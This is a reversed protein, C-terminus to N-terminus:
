AGDSDGLQCTTKGCEECVDHMKEDCGPTCKLITHDFWFNEHSCEGNFGYGFADMEVQDIINDHEYVDRVETILVGFNDIEVM